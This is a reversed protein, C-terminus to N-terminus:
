KGNCVLFRSYARSRLLPLFSCLEQVGHDKGLERDTDLKGETGVVVGEQSEEDDAEKVGGAHGAHGARGARGHERGHERGAHGANRGTDIDQEESRRVVQVRTDYDM